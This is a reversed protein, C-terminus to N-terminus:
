YLYMAQPKDSYRLLTMIKEIENTDSQFINQLTVGLGSFFGLSDNYQFVQADELDHDKKLAALADEFTGVEDVLDVEKAQRGTYIRGDALKRVTAEDMNRGDVIVQVFDDFMEDVISQLIEREEKTMERNSSMIDKHKGSKITNFSIGYKEALGAFNVNEMIVGISGTITAPEAFIKDAPAAVYYGGSAAMSGMSVYIPKEYEEQIDVITRHIEATPGVAGGPSNVKLIIGAISPDEGAERIMKLISDHNYGDAMFISTEGEMIVGELNIVAIRESWDGDEIVEEELALEEFSMVGEFLGAVVSMAFNFGISVVFLAIALILALWRRTNMIYLGNRGILLNINEINFDYLLFIAFVVSKQLKDLQLFFNKDRLCNM